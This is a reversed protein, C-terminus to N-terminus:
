VETSLVLQLMGPPLMVGFDIEGVPLVSHPAKHTHSYIDGQGPTPMPGSFSKGESENSFSSTSNGMQGTKRIEALSKHVQDFKRERFEEVIWASYRYSNLVFNLAENIANPHRSPWTGFNDPYLVFDLDEVVYRELKILTEPGVELDFIHCIQKLSTMAVRKGESLKWALIYCVALVASADQYSFENNLDYMDVLREFLDITLIKTLQSGLAKDVKGYLFLPYKYSKTRLSVTLEEIAQCPLSVMSQFIKHKLAWAASARKSPDIVLCNMMLDVVDSFTEGLLLSSKHVGEIYKKIKPTELNSLANLFDEGEELFNRLTEYREEENEGPMLEIPFVGFLMKFIVVGVTWIDAKYDYNCKGESIEPAKYIRGQIHRFKGGKANRQVFGFDSLKLHIRGSPTKFLLFNSPKIDGQVYGLSHVADVSLFVQHLLSIFVKKTPNLKMFHELNCFARESLYCIKGPGRKTSELDSHSEVLDGDDIFVHIAKSIHPHTIRRMFDVERLSSPDLGVPSELDAKCSSNLHPELDPKCARNPLTEKKERHKEQRCREAYSTEIKLAYSAGNFRVEKVEGFAGRGLTGLFEFDCIRTPFEPIPVTEFKRRVRVFKRGSQEPPQPSPELVFPQQDEGKKRKEDGKSESGETDESESDDSEESESPEKQLPLGFKFPTGDPLIFNFPLEEPLGKRKSSIVEPEGIM